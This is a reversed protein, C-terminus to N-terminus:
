CWSHDRRINLDAVISVQEFTDFSDDKGENDSDRDLSSFKGIGGGRREGQNLSDNSHMSNQQAVSQKIANYFRDVDIETPSSTSDRTEGGAENGSDNNAEQDSGISAFNTLVPTGSQGCKQWPEYYAISILDEQTLEKDDSSFILEIDDVEEQNDSTSRNPSQLRFKPPKPQLCDKDVEGEALFVDDPEYTDKPETIEEIVM